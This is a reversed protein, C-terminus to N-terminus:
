LGEAALEEPTLDRLLGLAELEADERRHLERFVDSVMQQIAAENARPHESRLHNKLKIREQEALRFGIKIKEDFTMRRAEEIKRRWRIEDLPPPVYVKDSM